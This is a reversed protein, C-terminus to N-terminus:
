IEEKTLGSFDKEETNQKSIHKEFVNMELKAKTNVVTMSTIACFGASRYDDVPGNMIKAFAKVM